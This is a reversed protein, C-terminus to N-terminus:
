ALTRIQNKSSSSDDNYRWSFARFTAAELVQLFRLILHTSFIIFDSHLESGIMLRWQIGCLMSDSFM